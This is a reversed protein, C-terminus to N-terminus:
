VARAIIELVTPTILRASPQAEADVFDRWITESQQEDIEGLELLRARGIRVFERPWLWMYDCPTLVEVIAAVSIVEFGSETLWRPLSRGVDPEGGDRRWSAIVRDVFLDHSRSDPIMRWTRYESYEHFAATAGTRMMGRIGGVLRKPDRVFAAVWRCWLGDAQMAPLDGDLDVEVLELHPLRRRQRQDELHRLFRRSREVAVVRGSPGVIEALDLAAYGPGSGLDVITQGPLFGARSWCRAAHPRWVRHQLGLREIEDDHTGLFYDDREQM